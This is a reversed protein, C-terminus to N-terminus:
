LLLLAALVSLLVLAGLAYLAARPVGGQRPEEVQVPLPSASGMTQSKSKKWLAEIRAEALGATEAESPAGPTPPAAEGMGAKQRVWLSKMQEEGLVTDVKRADASRPASELRDMFNTWTEQERDGETVKRHSRAPDGGSGPWGPIASLEAVMEAIDSYRKSASPDLARDVVADVRRDLGSSLQSPPAYKVAPLQGTLMEYFTVGLSYIDARQDVSRADTRQEPAMYLLTGMATASRTLNEKLSGEELLGVLGFDGLKAGGKEALLINEPKVDRHIVGESHIFGLADCVHSMIVAADEFALGRPPIRKRLSTGAVYEMVFYFLDGTRGKDIIQIIRPHSLRALVRAEKDFRQVLVAQRSLEPSLVKIAVRRDLALQTAMYVIGMGGRGLESEIRYGPIGHADLVGPTPPPSEPLGAGTPANPDAGGVNGPAPAAPTPGASLPYLKGCQKCYVERADGFEDTVIRARCGPCDFYGM